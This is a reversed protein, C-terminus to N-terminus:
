RMSHGMDANNAKLGKVGPRIKFLGGALPWRELEEPSMGGRATTIYLEDLQEGGFTCSTVYHAPVEIKRTQEGTLPNWRSVCGGAWHAIWLMGESDITMGDPWGEGEAFRIVPRRVSVSGDQLSYDLVEVSFTLTDIYYMLGRSDDWALGNSIGIGSLVQRVEGGSEMVYLSGDKGTNKMNMSGFWLRGRSDCKADNLRNGPLEAEVLALLELPQRTQYRYIGDQLVLIWGGGAAPIAASVKKNFSYIDESGALPDYVRLERGDVDVWYLKGEVPDWHPGEGLAAKADIVLEIQGTL